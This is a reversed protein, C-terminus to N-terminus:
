WLHSNRYGTCTPPHHACGNYLIGRTVWMHGALAVEVYTLGRESQVIGLAGIDDIIFSDNVIPQQFGQM